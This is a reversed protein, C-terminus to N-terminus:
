RLVYSKTKAKKGKHNEYKDIEKKFGLFTKKEDVRYFLLDRSINQTAITLQPTTTQLM